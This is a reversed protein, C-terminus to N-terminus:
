KFNNLCLKYIYYAAILTDCLGMLFVVIIINKPTNIIWLVISSTLAILGITICKGFIEIHGYKKMRNMMNSDKPLSLFITIATLLFGILTGSIQILTAMDDELEVKSCIPLKYLCISLSLVIIPVSIYCYKKLLKIM